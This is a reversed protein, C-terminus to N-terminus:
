TLNPLLRGAQDALYLAICLIPASFVIWAHARGRRLWTWVAAALALALLELGFAVGRWGSDDAAMVREAPTIAALPKAAAFPPGVLDADVYLAGSPFLPPGSASVLTLRGSGEALAPIRGGARRVGVVRFTALGVGTRVTIVNGRRLSGIRGFPGGYAGSRGFVVSTGVGGPFVSTRLHGPGAMLVASSTGEDVVERVGLAPITLLAIPTGPAIPRGGARPGLPVTGQALENRLLTYERAQAVTHALGSGWAVYVVFGLLLISLTILAARALAVVEDGALSAGRQGVAADGGAGARPSPPGSSVHDGIPAAGGAGPSPGLPAVVVSM